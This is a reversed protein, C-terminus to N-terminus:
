CAAAKRHENVIRLFNAALAEGIPSKHSEPHFQLGFTPRSVHRLAMLEGDDEAWAVPVLPCGETLAVSLSHYRMVEPAPAIGEFLGTGEHRLVSTKGHMLRAAPRVTAGYHLGMAQHGLCVGLIPLHDGLAELALLGLECERPHGPGPSLVLGDRALERVATMDLGEPRRVVVEAGAGILLHALIHSFSDLHDILLLQPRSM